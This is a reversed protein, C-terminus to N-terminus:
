TEVVASQLAHLLHDLWAVLTDPNPVHAAASLPAQPGVGLTIGGLSTVAAFADSDNDADGAYFVFAPEGVHDVIKQVAESKTGAGAVTVELARPVDVIRLEKTWRELFGLVRSRVEETQSPAVGRYHVTFGYRKHEVWAGPYVQEITALRRTVEDILQVSQLAAPHVFSSGDHLKLEIGSLGGYLLDPIDILKEVDELRRGSLVGVHTRPLAAFQGLLDRTRARDEGVM